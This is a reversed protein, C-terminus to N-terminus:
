DNSVKKQAAFDYRLDRGLVGRGCTACARFDMDDPLGESIDRRAFEHDKHYCVTQLCVEGKTYLYLAALFTDARTNSLNALDDILTSAQLRDFTHLALATIEDATMRPESM